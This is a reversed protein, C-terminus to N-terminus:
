TVVSLRPKTEKLTRNQILALGLQKLSNEVLCLHPGISLALSASLAVVVDVDVSLCLFISPPARLLTLPFHMKRPGSVGSFGRTQLVSRPM